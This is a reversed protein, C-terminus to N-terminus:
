FRRAGAPGEDAARSSAGEQPPEGTVNPHAPRVPGPAQHQPEALRRPPLRLRRRRRVAAAGHDRGDGPRHRDALAPHGPPRRRVAPRRRHPRRPRARRVGPGRDAAAAGQGGRRLRRAAAAYLNLAGAMGHREKLPLSLSSRTGRDVAFPPYPMWRAEEAMDTVYVEKDHRLAELCPGRRHHVADRRAAPRQAPAPSPTPADTANWPSAAATPAPCVASAEAALEPSSPTSPRARWWSPSPTSPPHSKWPKETRSQPGPRRPEEGGCECAPPFRPRGSRDLPIRGSM